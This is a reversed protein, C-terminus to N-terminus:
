LQLRHNHTGANTPVVLRAKNEEYQM